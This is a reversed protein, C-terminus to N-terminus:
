REILECSRIKLRDIPISEVRQSKASGGDIKVSKSFVCFQVLINKQKFSILRTYHKSKMSITLKGRIQGGPEKNKQSPPLKDKWSAPCVKRNNVSSLVIRTLVLKSISKQKDEFFKQESTPPKTGHM